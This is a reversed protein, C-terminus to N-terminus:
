LSSGEVVRGNTSHIKEDGKELSIGQYTPISFGPYVGALDFGDCERSEAIEVM